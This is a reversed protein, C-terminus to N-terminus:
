GLYNSSDLCPSPYARPGRAVHWATAPRTSAHEEGATAQPQLLDLVAWMVKGGDATPLAGLARSLGAVITLGRGHQGLGPNQQQPGAPTHDRVTLRLSDLSRSISVDIDGGTTDHLTANTVLESVVLCASSTLATLQWDRLTEAVFDRAARPATPHSALRLREVPPAPIRLVAYLAFLLSKTVTLRSGLPRASLADRVRPDPSSVAVPTGSWDRVHRGSAALMALADPDTGNLVGALDCAVGRPGTALALQIAWDLDEVIDGLRGAVQIVVVERIPRMRVRLRPGSSTRDASRAPRRYGGLDFEAPVLDFETPVSHSDTPPQVAWLGPAHDLDRYAASM